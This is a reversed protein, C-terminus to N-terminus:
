SALLGQADIGGPSSPVHVEPGAKLRGPATVPLPSAKGGGPSYRNVREGRKALVEPRESWRGRPGVGEYDGGLGVCHCGPAGRWERGLGSWGGRGKRFPEAGVARLWHGCGGSDFMRQMSPSLGSGRAWTGLRPQRRWGLTMGLSWTWICRGSKGQGGREWGALERQELMGRRRSRLDGLGRSRRSGQGGAEQTEEGVGRQALSSTRSRQIERSYALLSQPPPSCHRGPMKRPQSLRAMGGVDRSIWRGTGPGEEEGRAKFCVRLCPLRRPYGEASGEAHPM